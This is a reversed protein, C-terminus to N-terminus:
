QQSRDVADLSAALADCAANFADRSANVLTKWAELTRLMDDVSLIEELENLEDNMTSNKRNPAFYNM